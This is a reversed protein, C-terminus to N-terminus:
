RTERLDPVGAPRFPVHVHKIASSASQQSQGPSGRAPLCTPSTPRDAVRRLVDPTSAAVAPFSAGQGADYSQCRPSKGAPPLLCPMTTHRRSSSRSALSRPRPSPAVPRALLAQASPSAPRCRWPPGRAPAATSLTSTTTTAENRREAFRPRCSCSTGTEPQNCARPPLGALSFALLLLGDRRRLM